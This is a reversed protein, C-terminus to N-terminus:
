WLMSVSPDVAVLCILTNVVESESTFTIKGSAMSITLNAADSASASDWFISVLRNTVIGPNNYVAVYSGDVEEFTLPVIFIGNDANLKKVLGNHKINLAM